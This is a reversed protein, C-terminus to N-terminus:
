ANPGLGLYVCTRPVLRPKPDPHNPESLCKGLFPSKTGFIDLLPIEHKAGQKQCPDTYIYIYIYLYISIYIYIYIYLIYMYM